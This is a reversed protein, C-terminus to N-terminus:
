QFGIRKAEERQHSKMEKFADGYGRLAEAYQAKTAHGEIFLDKIADLSKEHGMKASIVWHQVALKYNGEDFSDIGLLHRSLVHGKMAAEQWHQIGRPKDKQVNDGNYYRAGLNCHAHVSGLEAADTWLEIARPVDKPLGLGGFCYQGALHFIAEADGKSVRKQIMALSSADDPPHPTRCFPCRDYIGRQQSALSCGECVSKMCCVNMKAHEGIPLGVFLFCIPCRDGEWRQHGENLLRASEASRDDDAAAVSAGDVQSPAGASENGPGVPEMRAQPEGSYAKENVKRTRRSRGRGTRKALTEGSKSQSPPAVKPQAPEARGLAVPLLLGDTEKSLAKALTSSHSQGDAHVSNDQAQSDDTTTWSGEEGETGETAEPFRFPRHNHPQAPVAPVRDLRRRRSSPTSHKLM